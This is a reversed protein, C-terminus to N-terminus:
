VVTGNEVKETVDAPTKVAVDPVTPPNVREALEM